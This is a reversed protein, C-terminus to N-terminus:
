LLVQANASDILVRTGESSSLQQGHSRTSIQTSQTRNPKDSSYIARRSLESDGVDCIRPTDCFIILFRKLEVVEGKVGSGDLLWHKSYDTDSSLGRRAISFKPEHRVDYAHTLFLAQRFIYKICFWQVTICSYDYMIFDLM